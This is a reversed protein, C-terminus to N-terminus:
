VANKGMRRVVMLQAGLKKVHALTLRSALQQRLGQMPGCISCLLPSATPCNHYYDFKKSGKRPSFDSSPKSQVADFLAALQPAHPYVNNQKPPDDAARTM